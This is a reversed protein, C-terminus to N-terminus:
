MLVDQQLRIADLAAQQLMKYKEEVQSRWQEPIGEVELCRLLGITGVLAAEIRALAAEVENHVAIHIM